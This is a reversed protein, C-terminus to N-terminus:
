SVRKQVQTAVAAAPQPISDDDDVQVDSAWYPDEKRLWVVTERVGHEMSIPPAGLLEYTQEMPTVYDETMSRYRSSFLPFKGGLQIVVDGIKAIGWLVPRPVVRVPRGALEKSFANTWHYIDIPPDGVYLTKRDLSGDECFLIQLMQEVVNGVYGYCRTVPAGGPHVYLGRKAVRWFENPYRPHWPGWVNTPRVITWTINLNTTRIAKEAQVKSEGYITHPRYDQDGAPLAGPGVVYQSSTFVANVISPTTQMTEVLNGTGVHNAAYDDVTTGLMDTRAALHIVHTPQFEDMLRKLAQVDLLDCYRYIGQQSKLKPPALDLNRINYLCRRQLESILNTGIFGSGGTVLVRHQV